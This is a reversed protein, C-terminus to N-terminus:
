RDEWATEGRRISGAPQQTLHPEVQKMVNLVLAFDKAIQMRTAAPYRWFVGALSSAKDAAEEGSQIANALDHLVLWFDDNSRM